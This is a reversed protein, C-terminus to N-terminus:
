YLWVPWQALSGNFLSYSCTERLAQLSSCWDRQNTRLSLEIYLLPILKKKQKGGIENIVTSWLQTYHLCVVSTETNMGKIWTLQASSYFIHFFFPQCEQITISDSTIEVRILIMVTFAGKVRCLPIRLSLYRIVNYDHKLGSHFNCSQTSLAENWLWVSLFTQYCKTWEFKTLISVPIILHHSLISSM